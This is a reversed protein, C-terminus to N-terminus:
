RCRQQQRRGHIAAETCDIKRVCQHQHQYQHDVPANILVLSASAILQCNKDEILQDEMLVFLLPLYNSNRKKETQFSHLQIVSSSAAMHLKVFSVSERHTSRVTLWFGVHKCAFCLGWSSTPPSGFGLSSLTTISSEHHTLIARKRPFHCVHFHSSSCCCRSWSATSVVPLSRRCPLCFFPLWPFHVAGCCCCHKSKWSHFTADSTDPGAIQASLFLVVM